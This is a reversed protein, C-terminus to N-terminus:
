RRLRPAEISRTQLVHAVPLMQGPEV